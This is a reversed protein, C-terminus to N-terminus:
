VQLTRIFYHDKGRSKNNISVVVRLDIDAFRLIIMCKLEIQKSSKLFQGGLCFQRYKVDLAM